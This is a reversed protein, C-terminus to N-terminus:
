QIDACHIRTGREASAISALNFRLTQIGAELSCTTAPKGDILDLFAHAQRVFLTDRELQPTEQWTWDTAGNAFHGWRRRHFEVSVSGGAAHLQFTTENPAQFQNLSYSVLAGAHRAAIHVTDEVTVNPLVLHGCDAVLSETPGLLGEIWNASHTLADQIAGGGTARDRYYTQAYAPRLLHFPQGAVVTAQQIAGFEGRRVFERAANLLPNQHFVYAVAIHRGSKERVHQLEAVGALSHSLPKEVLVHAGAELAARAMPIHLPAPTCIVAADFDGRQLAAAWDSETATGYMAAMHALRQSNSDCAVPTTRGTQLFCRLHREGISGCGIVLTRHSSM